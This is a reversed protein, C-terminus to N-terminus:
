DIWIFFIIAQMRLVNSATLKNAVQTRNLKLAHECLQVADSDYFLFSKFFRECWCWACYFLKAVIM